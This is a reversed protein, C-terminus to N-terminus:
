YPFHSPGGPGQGGSNAVRAAVQAIHDIIMEHMGAVDLTTLLQIFHGRTDKYVQCSRDSKSGRRFATSISESTSYYVIECLLCVGDPGTVQQWNCNFVYEDGSDGESTDRAPILTAPALPARSGLPNNRSREWPLAGAARPEPEPELEAQMTAEPESAAADDLLAQMIEAPHAAKWRLQEIKTLGHPM